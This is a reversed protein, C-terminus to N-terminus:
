SELESVVTVLCLLPPQDSIMTIYEGVAVRPLTLNTQIALQRKTDSNPKPHAQFQSELTDVQDKTLRPRSLNEAYEEYEEFSPHHHPYFDAMEVPPHAVLYSDMPYGMQPHRLHGDYGVPHEMPAAAHGAFHFPHHIYNM